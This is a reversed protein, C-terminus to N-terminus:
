PPWWQRLREADTWYTFLTAPDSAPFAATVIVQDDDSPLQSIPAPITSMPSDGKRLEIATRGARASRIFLVCRAGWPHGAADTASPPGPATTRAPASGVAVQQGRGEEEQRSQS